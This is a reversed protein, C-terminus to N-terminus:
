RRRWVCDDTIALRQQIPRIDQLFRKADAPYGATPRLNADHRRWFRNWNGMLLERVYKAIMSAAAAPLEAEGGVTFRIQCQRSGEQWRYCSDRANERVVSVLQSTLYQQLLGAYYARGGHRDCYVEAHDTHLGLMRQVLQLTSATLVGGKNGYQLLLGNFEVPAIIRAALALLQVRDRESAARVREAHEQIADPSAASPLELPQPDDFFEAPEFPAPHTLGVSQLDTLFQNTPTTRIAPIQRALALAACELLQLDGGGRYATKSDAVLLKQPSENPSRRVCDSWRAYWDFPWEPVYWATAAIVLPGLNPGYGAEDVGIVLPM